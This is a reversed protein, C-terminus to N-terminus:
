KLIQRAVLNYNDIKEQSAARTITRKDSCSEIIPNQHLWVIRTRKSLERLKPVIGKLDNEYNIHADGGEEMHHPSWGSKVFSLIAKCSRNSFRRNGVVLLLPANYPMFHGWENLDNIADGIKPRWRFTLRFNSVASEIIVDQHFKFTLRDVPPSNPWV